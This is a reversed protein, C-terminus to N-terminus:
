SRRIALIGTGRVGNYDFQWGPHTSGLKGRKGVFSDVKGREDPRDSVGVVQPSGHLLGWGDSLGWGGYKSSMASPWGDWSETSGVWGEMRRVRGVTCPAVVM